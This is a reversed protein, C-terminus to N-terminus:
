RDREADSRYEAAAARDGAESEMVREIISDALLEVIGGDVDEIENGADDFIQVGDLEPGEAPTGGCSYTPGTEPYGPIMTGTVRLSEGDLVFLLDFKRHRRM